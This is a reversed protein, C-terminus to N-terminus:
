TTGTPFHRLRTKPIGKSCTITFANPRHSSVIEDGETIFVNVPDYETTGYLTLRCGGLPLRGEPDYSFGMFLDEGTDLITTTEAHVAGVALMLTATAALLKNRFMEDRGLTSQGACAM